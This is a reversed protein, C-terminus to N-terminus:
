DTSGGIAVRGLGSQSVYSLVYSNLIWTLNEQSINLDRGIVPLMLLVSQGAMASLFSTSTTCSAIALTTRLPPDKQVATELSAVESSNLVPAVPLGAIGQPDEPLYSKRDDRPSDMLGGM